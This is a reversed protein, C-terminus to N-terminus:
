LGEFDDHRNQPAGEASRRGGMITSIGLPIVAFIVVFTCAFLLVSWWSANM